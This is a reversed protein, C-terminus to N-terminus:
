NTCNNNIILLSTKILGEQANPQLANEFRNQLKIVKYKQDALFRKSQQGVLWVMIFRRINDSDKILEWAAIVVSPTGFLSKFKDQMKLRLIWNDIKLFDLFMKSM